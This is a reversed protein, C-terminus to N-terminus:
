LSTISKAFEEFFQLAEPNRLADKNAAVNTGIGLLIKKIPAELKKGSITYPIDKVEIIEDPVHRPSYDERLQKRIRSKLDDDVQGGEAPVVFLPM